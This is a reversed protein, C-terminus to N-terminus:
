KPPKADGNAPLLNAVLATFCLGQIFGDKDKENSLDKRLLMLNSDESGRHRKGGNWRNTVRESFFRRRIYPIVQIAIFKNHVTTTM